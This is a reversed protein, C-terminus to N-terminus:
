RPVNGGHGETDEDDLRPINGGHGTVDDDDTAAARPINGGHGIVDDDEDARPINGGHGEVFDRITPIIRNPNKGLQAMDVLRVGNSRDIHKSLLEFREAPLAVLMPEGAVLGAKLFSL